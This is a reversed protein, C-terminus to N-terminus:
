RGLEPLLINGQRWPPLIRELHLMYDLIGVADAEDDNQPKIGLLSCQEVCYLKSEGKPPKKSTGIFHPFWHRKEIESFRRIGKNHAYFGAAGALCVLTKTHEFKTPHNIQNPNAPAEVGIVDPMGFACIDSLHRWLRDMCEGDTSFSTGSKFHGLTPKPAGTEWRAWGTSSKSIDLALFLM